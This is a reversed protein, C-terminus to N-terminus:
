KRKPARRVDTHQALQARQRDRFEFRVAWVILLSLAAGIWISFPSYWTILWALGGGLGVLWSAPTLPLRLVSIL